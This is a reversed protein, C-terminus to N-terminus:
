ESAWRQRDTLFLGFGSLRGSAKLPFQSPIQNAAVTKLVFNGWSDVGGQLCETILRADMTGLTLYLAHVPKIYDNLAFFEYQSNITTWTCQRDGYWAVAWPVDSMTLEDPRMWGAIKQIDPPYYPPYAVPSAKSVLTGILPQCAIVALLAIVGYRVQPTPVNMQNLLTLFFAVGFIAVLPTLLALLNESNMEPTIISLQTRGLAEAIIFVGLCMMTFYRLRRAALNRLGLLLGAFFLAGVWVGNAQLLGNQLIYRTNEAFKRVYPMMGYVSNLNPNLSQMLNTSPFVFTGEAVAYGATGFITGSVALNRAIWPSVMLAFALMAAAALGTRRAGGFLTLFVVVPVILWGFSYRTLMGLGTLLGITIALIFLRRPDPLEARGLEEVKVLLWILGLFIVLVLLTSLGSVSFKWLLDSGLTLLAALWAAPGDFLKKALLFTLAVVALLLIQNFIAIRFEAKYRLFRGGESWFPKHLQVKWDPTWVKMLGALVTPYVPANALDPHPRNIQAFDMANTSLIEGPHVVRNHKQVLYLSFPRIFETTYGRGEAVNRAVQAVDMAEPSYFNRYARLDYFGVLAVLAVALSIYKMWRSGGGVETAHILTQIRDAIMM